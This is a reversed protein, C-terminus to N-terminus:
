LKLPLLVQVLLGSLLLSPLIRRPLGALWVVLVLTTRLVLLPLVRVTELRM